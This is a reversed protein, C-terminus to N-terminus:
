DENVALSNSSCAVISSFTNGFELRAYPHPASMPVLGICLGLM